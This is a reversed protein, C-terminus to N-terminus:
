HSVFRSGVTALECMLVRGGIVGSAISVSLYGEIDVIIHALDQVEVVVAYLFSGPGPVVALVHLSHPLRDLRVGFEGLRSAKSSGRATELSVSALTHTALQDIAPIGVGRDKGLDVHVLVVVLGDGIGVKQEALGTGRLGLGDAPPIFEGDSGHRRSPPPLPLHWNVLDLFVRLRAVVFLQRKGGTAPRCLSLCKDSLAITITIEYLQLIYYVM